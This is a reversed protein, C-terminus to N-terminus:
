VVCSITNDVKSSVIYQPKIFEKHEMKLVPHGIISGWITGNRSVIHGLKHVSKNLHINLLNETNKILETESNIMDRFSECQKLIMFNIHEKNAKIWNTLPKNRNSNTGALHSAFRYRINTTRGIYRIVNDRSDHIAYVIYQHRRIM